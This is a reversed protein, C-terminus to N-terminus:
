DGSGEDNLIIDITTMESDKEDRLNQLWKLAAKLRNEDDCIKYYDIMTRADSLAQYDENSKPQVPIVVNM